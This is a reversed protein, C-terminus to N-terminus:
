VVSSCLMELSTRRRNEKILSGCMCSGKETKSISYNYKLSETILGRKHFCFTNRSSLTSVFTFTSIVALGVEQILVYKSSYKFYM